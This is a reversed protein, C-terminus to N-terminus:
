LPGKTDLPMENLLRGRFSAGSLANTSFLQLLDSDVIESGVSMNLKWVFSSM